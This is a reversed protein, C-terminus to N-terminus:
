HLFLVLFGLVSLQAVLILSSGVSLLWIRRDRLPALLGITAPPERVPPERLVAIGVLATAFCCGALVALSTQVGGLAPLLGGAVAGGIPIATQRIGLALGRESPAFWAIVARGSAASVGAGLGSALALLVVLPALSSVAAAGAVAASAALMGIGLVAREAFRDTALGWPLLTLTQGIGVSALLLGVDSLSLGFDRRFAPALVPLGILLAAYAAQAATGAALIAWRYRGRSLAGSPVLLQATPGRQGARQPTRPRAWILRIHASGADECRM